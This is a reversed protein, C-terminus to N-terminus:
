YCNKVCRVSYGVTKIGKGSRYVGTYNYHMFHVYAVTDNYATANWWDCGYGLVDFIGTDGRNGGPLASFGTKNIFEPYDTNGIFGTNSSAPWGHYSALSKAIYTNGVVGDYSYGHSILYDEMKNWEKDTPLHWGDPCVKKAAEWQYLVGYTDAYYSNNNYYCWGDYNSNNTWETNNTIQKIGNGTYNLNEAMWIQDGIKVWKYVKSDRTDKFEGKDQSYDPNDLTLDDQKCCGTLMLTSVLITLLLLNMLKRTRM